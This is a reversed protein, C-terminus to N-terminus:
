PKTRPVEPLPGHRHVSLFSPPVADSLWVTENGLHFKVGAADAAAADVQLIAPRGGRRSGVTMATAVDASLHVHQRSMPRLGEAMIADVSSPHTGHYLVAPPTARDRRIPTPVSHGYFARIRGGEVEFRRKASAAMAAEVVDPNLGAWERRRRGLARLLDAVDVWGGDDLALGYRGPDHRLAQSIAKGIAVHDTM